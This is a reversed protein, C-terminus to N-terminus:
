AFFRPAFGIDGSLANSVRSSYIELYEVRAIGNVQGYSHTLNAFPFIVKFIDLRNEQFVQRRALIINESYKFGLENLSIFKSPPKFVFPFHTKQPFKAVTQFFDASGWKATVGRTGLKIVTTFHSAITAALSSINLTKGFIDNSCDGGTGFINVHDPLNCPTKASKEVWDVIELLQSISLSSPDLSM